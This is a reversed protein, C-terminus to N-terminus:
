DNDQVLGNRDTGDWIVKRLEIRFNNMWRRRARGLPEKRTFKVSFVIHM